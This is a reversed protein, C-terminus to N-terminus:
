AFKTQSSLVTFSADGTKIITHSYVDVSSVNGSSPSVGSQWKPTVASGDIQFGTQYYATSGNAVLFKVAISDGINMLSNLTTSSNGRINVTFNGSSDSTYYLVSQASVDFDVTGTAATASVTVKERVGNTGQNTLYGYIYAASTDTNGIVTTNAGKGIANYGVVISNSDSNNFGRTGYGVYVSNAASTLSTTGDAQFRAASDGIAVNNSGGNGYLANAGVSINYNGSMNMLM